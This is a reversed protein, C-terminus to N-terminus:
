WISNSVHLLKIASILINTLCNLRVIVPRSVPDFLCDADFDHANDSTRCSKWKPTMSAKVPDSFVLDYINNKKEVELGIKYACFILENEECNVPTVIFRCGVRYCYIRLHDTAELSTNLFQIQTRDVQCRLIARIFHIKQYSWDPRWHFMCLIGRIEEIEKAALLHSLVLDWDAHVIQTPSKTTAAVVSNSDM